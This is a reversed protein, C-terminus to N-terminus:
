DRLSDHFKVLKVIMGEKDKGFKLKNTRIFQQNQAQTSRLVKLLNGKSKIPTYISDKLVYYRDIGSVTREVNIPTVTETIKKERKALVSLNGKYLLDYYGSAIKSDNLTDSLNVFTHGHLSFSEVHEPIMIINAIKDIHTLILQDRVLDYAIQVNEYKYGQYTISGTVFNPSIFFTHGNDNLRVYARYIRGNFLPAQSGLQGLYSRVMNNSVAAVYASDSLSQSQSHETALMM